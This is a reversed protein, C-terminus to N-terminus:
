EQGGEKIDREDLPAFDLGDKHMEKAHQYYSPRQSSRRLNRPRLFYPRVSHSWLPARVLTDSLGNLTLPTLPAMYPVGFSKLSVLHILVLIAGAAIGLFGFMAALIMLPFRLLRISLAANFSPISFSGIATLAVVIVMVPSVIGASVAAQGIIIGGVIGITSGIPAPLRIGAERLLEFTFEMIFAEIVAPFPVGARSGAIALALSAPIIEQHFNILAIYIAPLLIANFLSITRVFRIASMLLWREYYDEASPLFNSLTAPVILAMPSGDAVIAIRGELLAAAVRDPRETFQVQPFPSFPNDEILQEIFGSEHIADIKILDLRRAVEKVLAPNAIGEMHLVGVDTFSREGLRSFKVHLAPDKIRRRVLAISSKMLENFGERSGRIVTETSPESIGRHEWSKVGLSIGKDLGNFLLIAEGNLVEEVLEIYTEKEKVEIMSLLQDTVLEKIGDATTVAPAVVEQAWLMLSAMTDRQLMAKDVLGDVFILVGPLKNATGTTFERFVVDDSNGLLKKLIVLNAQLDPELCKEAAERLAQAEEQSPNSSQGQQQEQRARAMEKAPVPRKMKRKSM